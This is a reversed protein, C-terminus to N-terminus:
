TDRRNHRQEISTAWRCNSPEYNGDNDIRDLTKGEPRVGMDEYFNEFKMWQECIIIGRGGYHKFNETEPNLCRSKMGIWSNYIPTGYEGHKTIKEIHLCGCSKARKLKLSSTITEIFNGCDCQCKWVVQGNNKRDGTDELVTLRGFKIGELNSKM